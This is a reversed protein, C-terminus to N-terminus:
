WLKFCLFCGQLGAITLSKLNYSVFLPFPDVRFPHLAVKYVNNKSYIQFFDLQFNTFLKVIKM